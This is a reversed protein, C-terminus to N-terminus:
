ISWARSLYVTGAFLLGMWLTDLFAGLANWESFSAFMTGNCAGNILLGLLFADLLSGNKGIIFYTLGAILIAYRIIAGSIRFKFEKQQIEEIKNIYIDKSLAYYIGDIGFLLAGVIAINM